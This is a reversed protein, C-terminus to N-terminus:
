QGVKLQNIGDGLSKSYLLAIMAANAAGSLSAGTRSWSLGRPTVIIGNDGSMYSVIFSQIEKELSDQAYGGLYCRNYVGEM